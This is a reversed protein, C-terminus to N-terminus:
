ELFDDHVERHCNACLLQCKDLEERIKSTFNKVSNLRTDKEDPNVHHFELANLSKNYGCKECKGGKYVVMKEKTERRYLLATKNECAKCKKYYKDRAKHFRFSDFSKHKDCTNCTQGPVGGSAKLGHKKLWYRVTSNSKGLEVGIHNVKYGKGLLSILTKKDM